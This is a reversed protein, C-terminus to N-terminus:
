HAAYAFGRRAFDLDAAYAHHAFEEAAAQVPLEGAARLAHWGGGLRLLHRQHVERRAVALKRASLVRADRWLFFGFVAFGGVGGLVWLGSDQVLGSIFVISAVVFSVLRAVSLRNSAQDLDAVQKGFKQERRDHEARAADCDTLPSSPPPPSGAAAM